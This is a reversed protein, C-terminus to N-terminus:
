LSTSSLLFTLIGFISVIFTTIGGLLFLENGPADPQGIIPTPTIVTVPATPIVTPTPSVQIITPTPSLAVTPTVSPLVTPTPTSIITVTPTASPTASQIVQNGSAFVLFTEQRTQSVGQANQARVILTNEGQVIDVTPRYTWIGSDNATTQAVLEQPNITIFVTSNARATGRFSPKQDLFQQNKFPVIIQPMQSQDVAITPFGTEPQSTDRPENTITFDYNNGLTVAPVPNIQNGLLTVLSQIDVGQFVMNLGTTDTIPVFTLLNKARLNQLELTYQGNTNTLTSLTEANTTTIYVISVPPATGNVTNLTGKLEIKQSSPTIPPGTKIEFPVSNNLFTESGSTISYYYTTDPKLNKLTIHHVTFPQSPDNQARDDTATQGLTPTEGYSVVGQVEQTTIYSITASTSTINSVRINQPVNTPSARGILPSGTQVLYGTAFIGGILLLLALLTPIKKNWITNRM